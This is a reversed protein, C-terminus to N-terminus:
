RLRVSKKRKERYMEYDAVNVLTDATENQTYEAEKFGFSMAIGQAQGVLCRATDREIAATLLLAQARRLGPLIIVFEDGGLRCVVGLQGVHKKLVDAVARIMSDGAGHGYTDNIYKLGDIDAFCVTLPRNQGKNERYLKRLQEIGARRNMLGTLADTKAMAEMQAEATKQATMDIMISTIIARGRQRSQTHTIRYIRGQADTYEESTTRASRPQMAAGIARSLYRPNQYGFLGRYAKNVMMLKRTDQEWIAIGEGLADLGKQLVARHRRPPGDQSLQAYLAILGRIRKRLAQDAVGDFCYIAMKQTGQPKMYPVCVVDAARKLAKQRSSVIDTGADARLVPVCVSKRSRWEEKMVYRKSRLEYLTACFAGTGEGSVRLFEHAKKQAAQDTFIGCVQSVVEADSQAGAARMATVTVLLCAAGRYQAHCVAMRTRYAVGDIRIDVTSEKPVPADTLVSFDQKSQMQTFMSDGTRFHKQAAHRNSFLICGTRKDVIFVPLPMGDLYYRVDYYDM